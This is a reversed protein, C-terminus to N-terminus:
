YFAVVVHGSKQCTVIAGDDTTTCQRLSAYPMLDPARRLTTKDPAKVLLGQPTAIAISKGGPSRPSGRPPPEDGFTALATATPADLRIAVPEGAVIAELGRATWAVPVASSAEGRGGSCKAGLRPVIPLVVDHVDGDAVPAFTARLAVGECAHYAELWRMKGDPSVVRSPWAPIDTDEQEWSALDVRAVKEGHRVLLKQPSEFALAGWEPHQGRPADVLVNLSRSSRADLPPAVDALMKHMESIRAATRTAPAVSAVDAANFAHLADGLTVYARVAAVGADELAKSTGCSPASGGHVKEIRPAGGDRCVARYLARMQEVMPPVNAAEKSKAAQKAIQKALADLSAAPEEPDRSPGAPRDFFALKASVKPKGEAELTVALVTDDNGDKDRDEATAEIGLKPALPPDTVIADFAIGIASGLRVVYLGRTGTGKSCATGLEAFASRPGIRALRWSPACSPDVSMPPGSAVVAPAPVGGKWHVLEGTSPPGADGAPRVIALADKKGDGDFDAILAQVIERDPMSVQAGDIEVTTTGPPPAIVSDSAAGADPKPVEASAVSSASASPDTASPVYPHDNKCARACGTLALLLIISSRRVVVRSIMDLAQGHTSAEQQREREPDAAEIAHPAVGRERVIGARDVLEDALGVSRRRAGLAGVSPSESRLRVRMTESPGGVGLPEVALDLVVVGGIRDRAALRPAIEDREEERAPGEGFGVVDRAALLAELLQRSACPARM